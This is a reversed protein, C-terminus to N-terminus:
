DALQALQWYIMRKVRYAEVLWGNGRGAYLAGRIAKYFTQQKTYELAEYDINKKSALARVIDMTSAPEASERFFDRIMPTLERVKFHESRKYRKKTPALPLEIEPQYLRITADIAHLNDKAQNFAAEKESYDHLLETRKRLLGSIVNKM